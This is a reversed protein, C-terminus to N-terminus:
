KKIVVIGYAPISTNTAGNLTYVTSSTTSYSYSNGNLGCNIMITYAGSDYTLTYILMDTNSPTQVGEYSVFKGFTKKIEILKQYVDFVDNDTSSLKQEAVSKLVNKNHSDMEITYSNFKYSPTITEDGWKFPQRYWLDKNNENGYKEVHSNTNGSMGLEDGYYIWSIGPSLITSAALVKARNYETSTGVVNDIVNVHNIARATDHNSTFPSNIFDSRNGYPVTVSGGSTTNTIQTTGSTNYKNYTENPQTVSMYSANMGNANQYLWESNHYFLSFDFQSDLAQYYPAIRAGYGDFNEGVLFCSPYVAKVENAFEKWFNVNKTLDSSYDFAVTVDEMKEEDYYSKEGIDEIVIDSGTDDVEDKMYIHKVADLRFGDLGFSLWYKALNCVMTRTLQCDYNLEAMSSGFKGYYYYNSEGDRYWDPHDEVNIDIYKRQETSYYKVTDGKFKWHYMDRYSVENGNEDLGVLAKQSNRFWLNNKSTHNLVLDMLVYMGNKHAKYMLERYDDITGFKSDVSYFDTVDYGHYSGSEQIPTLWLVQVGLDNKLYDLADIIGRIDGVGDGNSDRFSPVFIQYGVGLTSFKDSTPSAPYRDNSSNIDSISRYQGTTDEITPNVAVEQGSEFSYDYVSGKTLFLHMSGNTRFHSSFDSIFTDGSGDSTWHSGGGMSSQKVILFGVRSANVFSVPEGSKGGIIDDRYLDIDYIIGYQDIEIDKGDLKNTMISDTMVHFTNKLKPDTAGWLSGEHDIPANQWIWVAYQKHEEISAGPRNYHIYLHGPKSWSNIWAEYDDVDSYSYSESESESSETESVYQSTSESSTQSSSDVDEGNCAVLSLSFLIVTLFISKKM